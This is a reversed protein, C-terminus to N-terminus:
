PNAFCAGEILAMTGAGLLLGLVFPNRLRRRWMYYAAWGALSGAAVWIAVPWLAVAPRPAAGAISYLSVFGFCGVVVVGAAGVAVGILLLLVFMGPPPTQEPPAYDLPDNV